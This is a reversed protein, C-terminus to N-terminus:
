KLRVLWISSERDDSRSWATFLRRGVCIMGRRNGPWRSMRIALSPVELSDDNDLDWTTVDRWQLAWQQEEVYRLWSFYVHGTEDSAMAPLAIEGVHCKALVISPGWEQTSNRYDRAILGISSSGLDGIWCVVAGGPRIVVLPDTDVEGKGFTESVGCPTYRRVVKYKADFPGALRVLGTRLDTISLMAADPTGDKSLGLTTAYVVGIEDVALDCIIEDSEQMGVDISEPFQRQSKWESLPSEAAVRPVLRDELASYAIIPNGRSDAALAPWLAECNRRLTLPCRQIGLEGGLIAMTLHGGQTYLLADMDDRFRALSHKGVLGNRSSVIEPACPRTAELRPDLLTTWIEISRYTGTDSHELRLWSLRLTSGASGTVLPNALVTPFADSAIRIAEQQPFANISAIDFPDRSVDSSNECGSAVQLCLIALVAIVSRLATMTRSIARFGQPTRLTLYRGGRSVTTM